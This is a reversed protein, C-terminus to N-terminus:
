RKGANERIFARVQQELQVTQHVDIVSLSKQLIKEQEAEPLNHWLSVVAAGLRRVIHADDESYTLITTDAMRTEM